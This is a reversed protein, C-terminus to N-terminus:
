RGGGVLDDRRGQPIGRAVFERYRRRAANIRKGFYLLVEGTKQGALELNGMLVGHGSWAYRDLEELDRVLGARLPNLHIYRVLELLYPDEECVISKYRNQFLHGARNHRLNFYVAYSTLLRRMLMALKNRRPRLLLHAHNPMLAWALCDTETEQLLESFRRLFFRRDGDDLFVERKEIGRVIVHQLIGAVDLRAVRPM